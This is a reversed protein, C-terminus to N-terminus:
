APRARRRGDGRASDTVRGALPAAAVCSRQDDGAEPDRLFSVPLLKGYAAVVGLDPALSMMDDFFGPAKLREPQWCTVGVREAVQKVPPPHTTTGARRVTPNRSWGSWTITRLWSPRSRPCRSTRRESSCCEFPLRTRDSDGSARASCASSTGSSSGANSEACDTSSCAASSTIWRTSSPAHSCGRGELCVPNGERDVGRVVARMPRTVTANIGPISLCGEEELQM